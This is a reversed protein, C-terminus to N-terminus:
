NDSKKVETFAECFECYTYEQMEDAEVPSLCNSCSYEAQILLSDLFEDDENSLVKENEM